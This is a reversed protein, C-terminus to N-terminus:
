GRWSAWPYRKQPVIGEACWEYTNNWFEENNQLEFLYARGANYFEGILELVGNIAKDKDDEEVLMKTATVINQEFELKEQVKKSTIEKETIDICIKLHANKGSWSIMKDKALFHKDLHENYLEWVKYSDKSLCEKDCFECPKKKNQLVDYCKRGKYDYAGTMARGVANIAFKDSDLRYVKLREELIGELM